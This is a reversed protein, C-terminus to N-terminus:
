PHPGANAGLRVVTVIFVLVVFAVLALGLAVNRRKRAEQARQPDFPDQDTM